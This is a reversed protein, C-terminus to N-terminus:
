EKKEESRSCGLEKGQPLIPPLPVKVKRIPSYWGTLWLWKCSLGTCLLLPIQVSSFPIFPM